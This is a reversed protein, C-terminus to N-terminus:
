TDEFSNEVTDLTGELSDSSDGLTDEHGTTNVDWGEVLVLKPVVSGQLTELFALKDNSTIHESASEFVIQEILM